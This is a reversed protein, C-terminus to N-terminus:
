DLSHNKWYDHISTPSYLFSFMSSNIIRFQPTPSSEQSDRPSCPYGVLENRLLDTRPTWQLSQHQLQFELLRAVSAFLQSMQFCGSAPFSQPCSSFPFVSSSIIPYCWWSLPYSNSYVGPTPSPCPLRSHQPEYPRLSDSVVSRSFQLYSKNIQNWYLAKM